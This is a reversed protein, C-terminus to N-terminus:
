LEQVLGRDFPCVRNSIYVPGYEMIEGDVEKLARHKVPLLDKGLSVRYCERDKCRYKGHPRKDSRDEM